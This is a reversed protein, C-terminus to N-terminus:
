RNPADFVQALGLLHTDKEAIIIQLSQTGLLLPLLAVEARCACLLQASSESVQRSGRVNGIQNGAPGVWEQAVSVPLERHIEFSASSQHELGCVFRDWCTGIARDGPFTDSFNSYDVDPVVMVSVCANEGSQTEGGPSM